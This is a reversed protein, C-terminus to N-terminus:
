FTVLTDKAFGRLIGYHIRRLVDKVTRCTRGEGVPTFRIARTVSSEQRFLM